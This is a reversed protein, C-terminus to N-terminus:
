GKKKSFSWSGGKSQPKANVKFIREMKTSGCKPNPSDMSQIVDKVKGCSPCKFTYFPM